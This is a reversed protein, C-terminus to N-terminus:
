TSQRREDIAQILAAAVIEPRWAAAAVRAAKKPIDISEPTKSWTSLVRTLGQSDSAGVYAGGDGLADRQAQSDLTVVACGAAAGQYIKNPVVRSAKPGAGFVGLCIDHNAVIGALDSPKVWDVWEVNEAEGARYRAEAYDQGMGIMTFEIPAHRLSAITDAIVTTGQLPTYLGCFVVRLPRRRQGESAVQRRNGAEYWEQSAGVPAVIRRDAKVTSLDANASTDFM